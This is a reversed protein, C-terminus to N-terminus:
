RKLAPETPGPDEGPFFPNHPHTRAPAPRDMFRKDALLGYGNRGTLPGFPRSAPM